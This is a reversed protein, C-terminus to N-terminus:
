QRGIGNYARLVRLEFRAGHHRLPPRGEYGLQLEVAAEGILHGLVIILGLDSPCRAGAGDASVLGVHGAVLGALHGEILRDVHGHCGWLLLKQGAVLVAVGDAVGLEVVADDGQLLVLLPHQALLQVRVLDGQLRRAVRDVLLGRLGVEQAVGLRQRLLLQHLRLYQNILTRFLALVLLLRRVRRIIIAHRRAALRALLLLLQRALHLLSMGAITRLHLILIRCLLILIRKLLTILLLRGRLLM